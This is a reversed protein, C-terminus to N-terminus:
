KKKAKAIVTPSGSVSLHEPGFKQAMNEYLEANFLQDGGGNGFIGGVLTAISVLNELTFPAPGQPQGLAANEAPMMTLFNLPQKAQNIYANIGNVYNSADQFLQEGGPQTHMYNVQNVLDQQTYPEDAWVEEDMSVNAGGAFSALDGQGSHRLADIFFLRDQATAYGIGFMLEARTDGYIHPVGFGKDRVITVGPEPSVTSETDGAPVGFTADKFYDPITASTGSGAATTLNSYMSLQDENHEPRAGTAEFQALQTVDDFGNTGPPLINRFGGFDSTGYPQVQAHAAPVCILAVCAASAVARVVCRFM